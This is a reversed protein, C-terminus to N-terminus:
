YTRRYTQYEGINAVYTRLTTVTSWTGDNNQHKMTVSIMRLNSANAATPGLGATGFVFGNVSQAAANYNITGGNDDSVNDVSVDFNYQYKYGSANVGANDLAWNTVGREDVSEAGPNGNISTANTANEFFHRHTPADIHGNRFLGNRNFDASGNPVDLIMATSATGESVLTADLSNEDWQYAMTQLIKASAAFVAEQDLNNKMNDSDSLMVMPFALMVISMIVIAFILEILTFAGKVM